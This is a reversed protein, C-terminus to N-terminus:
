LGFWWCNRPHQVISWQHHQYRKRDCFWSDSRWGPKRVVFASATAANYGDQVGRTHGLIRNGATHTKSGYSVDAIGYITVPFNRLLLRHLWLLWHL